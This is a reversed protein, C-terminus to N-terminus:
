YVDNGIGLMMNWAWLDGDSMEPVETSAKVAEAPNLTVVSNEEKKDGSFLDTRNLAIDM